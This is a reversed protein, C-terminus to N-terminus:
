PNDARVSVTQFTWVGNATTNTPNISVGLYLGATTFNFTSSTGNFVQDQAASAFGTTANAHALKMCWAITGTSSLSRVIAEINFWATDTAATQASGTATALATDATTQATGCRINFAPTGTCAATKTASIQWTVVSGAVLNKVPIASPALYFDAGATPGVDATNTAIYTNGVKRVVSLDDITRLMKDNTRGYLEVKGSAPASPDSGLSNFRLRSM